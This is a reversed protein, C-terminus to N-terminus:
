LVFRWLLSGGVLAVLLIAGTWWASRNPETLDVKGSAWEWFEDHGMVADLSALDETAPDVLDLRLEALWQRV